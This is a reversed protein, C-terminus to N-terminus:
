RTTPFYSPLLMWCLMRRTTSKALWNGTLGCGNIKGTERRNATLCLTTAEAVLLFHTNIMLPKHVVSHTLMQINCGNHRILEEQFNTLPLRLGADFTKLYVGVKAPSPSTIVAGSM